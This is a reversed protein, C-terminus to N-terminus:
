DAAYWLESLIKTGYRKGKERELGVFCTVLHLLASQLVVISDSADTESNRVNGIAFNSM